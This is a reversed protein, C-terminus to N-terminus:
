NQPPNEIFDQNESEIYVWFDLFYQGSKRDIEGVNALTIGIIYEDYETTTLNQEFELNQGLAINPNVLLFLISFFLCYILFRM